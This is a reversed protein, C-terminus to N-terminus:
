NTHAERHLADQRRLERAPDTYRRRGLRAPMAPRGCEHKQYRRAAIVSPEYRQAAVIIMTMGDGYLVMPGDRTPTLDIPMEAGTNRHVGWGIWRRCHDCQSYCAFVAAEPPLDGRLTQLSMPILAEVEEVRRPPHDAVYAVVESLVHRLAVVDSEDLPRQPGEAGPVLQGRSM